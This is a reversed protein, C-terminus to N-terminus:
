KSRSSDARRTVDVSGWAKRAEYWQAVRASRYRVPKANIDDALGM